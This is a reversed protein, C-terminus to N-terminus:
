PLRLSQGSPVPCSPSQRVTRLFDAFAGISADYGIPGVRGTLLLWRLFLGYLNLCDCECYNSIKEIEGAQWMFEVESGDGGVKGPLGTARALMDMGLKASAGYDSLQDMLDCHWEGSYRYAYNNFRDNAQFWRPTAVGKIFARQLLVPLDFGRGNWAVLIPKTRGFYSWFKAILDDEDGTMCGSKLPVLSFGDRSQGARAVVMGIAVVRWGVPPPWKGAPWDGLVAQDRVTEIDAAIVTDSNM